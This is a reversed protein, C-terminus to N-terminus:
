KVFTRYFIILSTSIDVVCLQIFDLVGLTGTTVRKREMKKREKMKIEKKEPNIVKCTHLICRKNSLVNERYESNKRFYTFTEPKNIYFYRPNLVTFSFM